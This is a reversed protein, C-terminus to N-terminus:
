MTFTPCSTKESNRVKRIPLMPWRQFESFDFRYDNHICFTSRNSEESNSGIPLPESAHAVHVHQRDEDACVKLIRWIWNKLWHIYSTYPRPSQPSFICVFVCVCVCVCHPLSTQRIRRVCEFIKNGVVPHRLGMPHRIEYIVKWLNAV